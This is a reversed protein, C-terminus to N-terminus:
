PTGESRSWVRRTTAYILRHQGPGQWDVTRGELTFGLSEFLGRSAANGKGVHAQVRYEGAAFLHDVAGTIWDSGIRAARRQPAVLLALEVVGRKVRFVQGVGVMSGDAIIATSVHQRQALTSRIWTASQAERWPENTNFFLRTGPEMTWQAIAAADAEGLPRVSIRRGAFAEALGGCESAARAEATRALRNARRESTVGIAVGVAVSVLCAARSSIAHARAASEGNM